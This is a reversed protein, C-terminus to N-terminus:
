IKALAMIDVARVVGFFDPRNRRSKPKDCDTAAGTPDIGSLGGDVIGSGERDSSRGRMSIVAQGLHLISGPRV